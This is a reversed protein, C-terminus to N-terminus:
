ATEQAVAVRRVVGLRQMRAQADRAANHFDPSALAWEVYSQVVRSLEEQVSWGCAKLLSLDSRVHRTDGVRYMGSPRAEMAVDMVQAVLAALELVNV